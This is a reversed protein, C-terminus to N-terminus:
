LDLRNLIELYCSYSGKTAFIQDERHRDSGVSAILGNKLQQEKLFRIKEINSVYEEYYVEVGGIHNCIDSFYRILEKVEDQSLQFPYSLPHCLIPFGKEQLIREVIHEMSQYEIFDTTPIYYKSYNGIYTDMAESINKCYGKKVLIEALQNRGIYRNPNVSRVEELSIDINLDKLKHLVAHMYNIKRDSIGTFIDSFKKNDVGYPFLGIIHVEMKVEDQNSRLPLVYSCSFECGPIVKMCRFTKTVEIPETIAFTNHDTIAIVSMGNEFALNIVDQLENKGDSFVTHLHFDVNGTESYVNKNM